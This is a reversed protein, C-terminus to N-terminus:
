HPDRDRLSQTLCLWAGGSGLVLPALQEGLHLSSGSVCLSPLRPPFFVASVRGIPSSLCNLTIAARGSYRAKIGLVWTTVRSDTVGTESEISEEGHVLCVRYVHSSNRRCTYFIFFNTFVFICNQSQCKIKALLSLFSRRCQPPWEEALRPFPQKNTLRCAVGEM